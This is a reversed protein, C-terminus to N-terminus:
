QLHRAPGFQGILFDRAGQLEAQLQRKGSEGKFSLSFCHRLIHMWIFFFCSVRQPFSAYTRFFLCRNRTYYYARWHKLGEETSAGGIHNIHTSPVFLCRWGALRLKHSLEVDEFYLFYRDDFGGCEKIARLRLLLNSAALWQCEVPELSTTKKLLTKGRCYDIVGLGMIPTQLNSKNESSQPGGINSPTGLKTRDNNIATEPVADLVAASLAAIKNNRLANKILTDLATKDVTADNNLLWVFEAENQLAYDLGANHGGSFGKNESLGLWLLNGFEKTLKKSEQGESGDDILLVKFNPYTL